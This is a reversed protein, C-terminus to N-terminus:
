NYKREKGNRYFGSSNKWHFEAAPSVVFQVIWVLVDTPVQEEFVPFGRESRRLNVSQVEINSVMWVNCWSSLPQTSPSEDMSSTMSSFPWYIHRWEQLWQKELDHMGNWFRNLKCEGIQAGTTCPRVRRQATWTVSFLLVPKRRIDNLPLKPSGRLCINQDPRGCFLSSISRGRFLLSGHYKPLPFCSPPTCRCSWVHRKGWSWSWRFNLFDDPFLYSLKITRAM